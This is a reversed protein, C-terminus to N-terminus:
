WSSSLTDLELVYCLTELSAKMADGRDLTWCEVVSGSYEKTQISLGAKENVKVM